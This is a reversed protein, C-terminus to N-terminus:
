HAWVCPPPLAARRTAVSCSDAHRRRSSLASARSFQHPRPSPSQVVSLCRPTAASELRLAGPPSKAM